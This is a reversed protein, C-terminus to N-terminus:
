KCLSLSGTLVREEKLGRAGIRVACLRQKQCCEKPLYAEKKLEVSRWGRWFLPVLAFSPSLIFRQVRLCLSISLSLSFSLLLSLFVWSNQPKQTRLLSLAAETQRSFSSAESLTFKVGVGVRYKWWSQIVWYKGDVHFFPWKRKGSSHLNTWFIGAVWRKM